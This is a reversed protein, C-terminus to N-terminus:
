QQSVALKEYLNILQSLHREMTYVAATKTAAAGMAQRTSLDELSLIREALEQPDQTRLIYGNKGEQILESGGCTDSAILPLGCAMSELCVNGFTDYHTPFVFIDAAAYYREINRRSGLFLVQRELGNQRVWKRYPRPNDNGAVLLRFHPSKKLQRMAALLLSLNKRRHDNSIFLLAIEDEGIGNEERVPARHEERVGPHFRSHNVGNYIVEIKDPNTGYHQIIHRKVMHSLSLVMKCGDGLFIRRELYGLVLRRPGMAKLRRVMANPYRMMMQIPNLEDSARYIDQYLIREMSQVADFRLKAIERSCFYAFSLNKGPSSFRFVPVYHYTIGSEEQWKNAFVHVEHGRRLLERSLFITYRELGGKSLLFNKCVLAIKM